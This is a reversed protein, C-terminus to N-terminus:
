LSTSNNFDNEENNNIYNNIIIKKQEDLEHNRMMVGWALFLGTYMGLSAIGKLNLSLEFLLLLIIFVKIASNKYQHITKLYVYITVILYVILGILGYYFIQRFYGIDTRKYYSGDENMYCGDGVLWTKYTEPIVDYMDRLRNTSTSELEGTEEYNEFLEFSFSEIQSFRYSGLEEQLTSYFFLFLPIILIYKYSNVIILFINKRMLIFYLVVFIFSIFFTRASLLGALILLSATTWYLLKNKYIISDKVDPLVTLILMDVGYNIGAGFFAQGIGVLRHSLEELRTKYGEALSMQSTIFDNFEPNIFMVLSIVAQIVAVILIADCLRGFSNIYNRGLYYLFLGAFLNFLPIIIIHKIFEMDYINNVTIQAFGLFLLVLYGLIIKRYQGWVFKSNIFFLAYVIGLVAIIRSLAVPFFLWIVPYIVSFLAFLFIINRISFM